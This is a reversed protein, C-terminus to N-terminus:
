LMRGPQYRRIERVSFALACAAFASFLLLALVTAKPEPIAAVGIGFRSILVGSLALLSLPLGAHVWDTLRIDLHNAKHLSHNVLVVSVLLVVTTSLPIGQVGFLRAFLLDAVVNTVFLVVGIRVLIHNMSLAFVLIGGAIGTWFVPFQLAYRNVLDAVAAATAADFSGRQYLLSVLFQSTLWVALTGACGVWPMVRIFLRYTATLGARDKNAVQRSLHILLVQGLAGSILAVVGTMLRNAYGLMSVAGPGATGAVWQDVMPNAYTILTAAIIARFGLLATSATASPLPITHVPLMRHAQLLYVGVTVTIFVGIAGGISAAFISQDPLTLVGIIIGTPLGLRLLSPMLFRGTVQLPGQLLEVLTGGAYMPVITVLFLTFLRRSEPPVAPIEVFYLAGVLAALGAGMLGTTSFGIFFFRRSVAEFHTGSEARLRSLAPVVVSRFGNSGVSMILVPISIALFLVDSEVTAGFVAALSIDRLLNAATVLTNGSLLSFFANKLRV